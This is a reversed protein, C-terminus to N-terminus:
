EFDALYIDFILVANPPIKGPSGEEGYALGSPIYFTGKGGKKLLPIGIKWGDILARLPFTAAKGGYNDFMMGTELLRGEYFVTVTSNINPNGGTGEKTIVYYIGSPHKTADINNKKLYDQILQDDIAAQDTGDDDKNCAIAALALAFLILIKKM